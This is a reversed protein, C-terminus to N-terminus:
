YAVKERKELFNRKLRFKFKAFELSGENLIVLKETYPSIREEPNFILRM